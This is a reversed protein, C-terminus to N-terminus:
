HSHKNLHYNRTRCIFHIIFCPSVEVPNDKLEPDSLMEEIVTLIEQLTCRNIFADDLGKRIVGDLQKWVGELELLYARRMELQSNPREKESVNSSDRPEPARGCACELLLCCLSFVDSQKTLKDVLLYVQHLTEKVGEPPETAIVEPPQYTLLSECTSCERAHYTENALSAQNHTIRVIGYESVKGVFRDNEKALLVNSPKLNGHVVGKSHLYIMGQVVDQALLLRQLDSQCALMLSHFRGSGYFQSISAHKSFSSLNDIYVNMVVCEQLPRSVDINLVQAVNPHQASLMTFNDLDNENFPETTFNIRKMVCIRDNYTGKFTYGFLDLKGHDDLSM